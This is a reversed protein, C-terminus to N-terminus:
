EEELLLRQRTSDQGPITDLLNRMEEVNDTLKKVHWELNKRQAEEEKLRQFEKIFYVQFEPSLWFCFNLAIDKHAFTGSNYRGARTYLGIANTEKVFKSPSLLIRNDSALDKVKHLHVLNFDPNHVTEWTILFKLNQMNRIWNIIVFQPKNSSQKAIDTLSIYDQKEVPEIRIELGQVNIKKKM